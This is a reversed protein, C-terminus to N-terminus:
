SKGELSVRFAENLGKAHELERGINALQRRANSWYSADFDRGDLLRSDREGRELAERVIELRNV